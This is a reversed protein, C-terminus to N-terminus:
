TKNQQSLKEKLISLCEDEPHPTSTFYEGCRQCQYLSAKEAWIYVSIPMLVLVLLAWPSSTGVVTFIGIAGGVLIVLGLLFWKWSNKEIKSVEDATLRRVM